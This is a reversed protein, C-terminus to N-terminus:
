CPGAPDPRWACRCCSRRFGSCRRGACWGPAPGQAAPLLALGGLLSSLNQAVLRDEPAGRTVWWLVPALALLPVLAVLWVGTLALWWALVELVGSM